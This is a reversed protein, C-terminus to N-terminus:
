RRRNSYKKSHRGRARRYIGRGLGVGWRSGLWVGAVWVAVVAVVGMGASM